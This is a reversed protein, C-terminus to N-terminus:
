LSPISLTKRINLLILIMLSLATATTPAGITVIIIFNIGVFTAGSLFNEFQLCVKPTSKALQLAAILKIDPRYRQCGPLCAALLLHEFTTIFKTTNDDDRSLRRCMYSQHQQETASALSQLTQRWSVCMLHLRKNTQKLAAQWFFGSVKPAVRAADALWFYVWSSAERQSSEVNHPACNKTFCVCWVGWLPWMLILILYMQSM